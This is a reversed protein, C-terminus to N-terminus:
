GAGGRLGLNSSEGPMVAFLARTPPAIRGGVSVPSLESTSNHRTAEIKERYALFETGIGQTFVNCSLFRRVDRATFKM